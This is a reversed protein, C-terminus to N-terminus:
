KRLWSLPDLPRGDKRIEFYLRAGRFSDSDGVLAIPEGKQVPQGSRKLLDSLHAYITYYREGHDIVIMRGYGSFRDAFVVKGAEVARVEEGMPAEIDIGKRFLEASFEPHRTKGFGEIVEGRVPYNLKGRMKEFGSGLPVSAEAPMPQSVAKRGIEDVMNQLRKAAQELEKLAAAHLEKERRLSSLVERKKERELRISEKVEVLARREGDLRERKHALERKLAEQRASEALFYNLLEQDRALTIELYRKRRMLDPVSSEGSLLILPSGGRQWKYFARARGKLLDRRVGLSSSLKKAEEEKKQLDVSLSELRLNIRNLEKSKGELEGEIKELAQLISGEKKRVKTFGQREREIKKKIGELEREVPAAFVMQSQLLFLLTALPLVALFRRLSFLSGGLGMACGLFLLLSAGELDLFQFQERPIFIGFSSPLQVSLFLFLLWLCLLSLSAGVIGQIMGEIVFPAKILGKTAGVLQMIEIEDKRALISLKVTSGVIFLTAVLLFGGFAWKAWEVGLSLLSLKEIWEEPYEVESIGEVERLRKALAQVSARQRHPKKLAIELSAPLIGENLGELVGAQAGLAKKFDNWAEGKSVYRVGEVEPNSRVLGLLSEINPAAPGEKIYAFIQIQSGWGKLLGHLNEQLLLFAGLIFLSMAMTGSTLIHTWLLERQGKLVRRLVFSLQALKM